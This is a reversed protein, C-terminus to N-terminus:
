HRSTRRAIFILEAEAKWRTRAKEGEDWTPPRSMRESKMWTPLIKENKVKKYYNTM